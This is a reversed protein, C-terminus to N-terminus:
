NSRKCVQPMWGRIKERIKAWYSGRVKADMTAAFPAVSAQFEMKRHVGFSVTGDFIMNDTRTRISVEYARGTTSPIRSSHHGAYGNKGSEFRHQEARSVGSIDIDLDDREVKGQDRSGGDWRGFFSPGGGSQPRLEFLDLRGTAGLAASDQKLLSYNPNLCRVDITLNNIEFVKGDQMQVRREKEVRNM